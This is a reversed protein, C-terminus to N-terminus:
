VFTQDPVHPCAGQGLLSGTSNSETHTNAIMPGFTQDNKKLRNICVDAQQGSLTSLPYGGSRHIMKM